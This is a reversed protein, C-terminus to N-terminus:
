GSRLGFRPRRTEDPMEGNKQIEAEVFDFMRQCHRRLRRKWHRRRVTAAANLRYRLDLRLQCYDVVSDIRWRLRLQVQCPPDDLMEDLTILLPKRLELVRGSRRATQTQWEYRCGHDPLPSEDGMSQPGWRRKALARVLANFLAVSDLDYRKVHQLRLM